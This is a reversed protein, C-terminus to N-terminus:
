GEPDELERLEHGYKSRMAAVVERGAADVEGGGAAAAAVARLREVVEDPERGKVLGALAGAEAALPRTRHVESM